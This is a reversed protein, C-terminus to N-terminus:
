VVISQNNLKFEYKHEDLIKMKEETLLSMKEMYNQEYDFISPNHNLGGRRLNWNNIINNIVDGKRVNPNEIGIFDFIKNAVFDTNKSAEGHKIILIRKEHNNIAQELGDYYKQVSQLFTYINEINTRSLFTAYQHYHDKMSVICPINPVKNLIKDLDLMYRPTKDLLYDNEDFLSSIEKIKDYADFWSQEQLIKRRDKKAIEWGGMEISRNSLWNYWPQVEYYKSPNIALLLGCEFGSKIKKHTRIIESTFTTGSGPFGTIIAVLSNKM